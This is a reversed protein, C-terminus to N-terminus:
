RNEGPARGLVRDYLEIIRRARAEPLFERRVRAQASEALRRALVPDRILQAIAGALRAPQGPPVLLAEMAEAVTEPVGGVLTAVIANGAAMAEILVNPSGESLSPLVFVDAQQYFPRVDSVQGAFTVPIRKAAALVELNRREHGEGVLLLRLPPLEVDTRLIALAEILDAHAKEKSLRGIALIIKEESGSRERGGIGSISGEPRIANPITEIRDRAVGMKELEPVFAAAVTVVQKAHPISFRDLQNYLIQKRTPQTYGHHWHVWRARRQVGSRWVLFASKVNHTQVIDPQIRAVLARIQSLTRLDLARNERITECRIGMREAAALFDDTEPQGPRRYTVVTLDVPGCETGGRRALEAFQLLNKAPGTLSVAELFALVSLPTPPTM